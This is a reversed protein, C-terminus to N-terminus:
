GRRACTRFLSGKFLTGDVFRDLAAIQLHGRPCTASFLGKRFRLRLHTLSGSGGALKPISATAELAYIGEAKGLEIPVRVEQLSSLDVWSRLVMAQPGTKYLLARGGTQFPEEEPFEVEWKVTGGGIRARSCKEWDTPVDQMTSFHCTPVDGLDLDLHRDFEITVERLPKLHSGDETSLTESIELAVPTRHTASIRAPTFRGEMELHEVPLLTSIAGATSIGGGILAIALATGLVRSLSPM